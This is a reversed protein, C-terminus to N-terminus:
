QGASDQGPTTESFPIPDGFIASGTVDVEGNSLNYLLGAGQPLGDTNPAAFFGSFQGSNGTTQGDVSVSDYNGGFLNTGDGIDGSGFANWIQDNISLDVNSQVTQNTFNAFLSASGLVGVNGLTDTPNTNGVLTFDASGSRTIAPVNATAESLAYHLSADTLDLDQAPGGDVAITATGDAWRGWRIGTDPDFGQNAISASGLRYDATSTGDNNPHAGIFAILDGNDNTATNRTTAAGVFNDPIEGYAVSRFPRNDPQPEPEPENEVVENPPLPQNDPPSTESGGEAFSDNGDGGQEGGSPPPPDDKPTQQGQTSDGGEDGQTDDQEDDGGSSPPPTDNSVVTNPRTPVPPTNQGGVFGFEGAGFDESGADNQVNIAGEWVGLYLGDDSNCNSACQYVSFDTGRIGITAVPTKLQYASRDRKGILGTITRFGGRVLNLVASGNERAAGILGSTSAPARQSQQSREEPASAPEPEPVAYDEVTFRTDPKLSILAGDAMRLHMRGSRATVLTDGVEVQAGRQAALATQGREISAGGLVFLVKGAAAQALAPSMTLVLAAALSAFAHKPVFQSM